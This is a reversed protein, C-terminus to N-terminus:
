CAGRLRAVAAPSDRGRHNRRAAAAGATPDPWRGDARFGPGLTNRAQPGGPARTRSQRADAFIPEDNKHCPLGPQYDTPAAAVPCPCRAHADPTVQVKTLFCSEAGEIAEKSPKPPRAPAKPRRRRAPPRIPSARVAAAESMPGRRARAPGRGGARRTAALPGPGPRASDAAPTGGPARREVVPKPGRARNRIPPGRPRPHLARRLPARHRGRSPARGDRGVRVV